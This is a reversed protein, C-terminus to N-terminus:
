PLPSCPDGRETSRSTRAFWFSSATSIPIKFLRNLFCFHGGGTPAPAVRCASNGSKNGIAERDDLSFKPRQSNPRRRPRFALRSVAVIRVQDLWRGKM